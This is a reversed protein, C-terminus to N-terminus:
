VDPLAALRLVLEPPAFRPTLADSAGFKEVTAYSEAAPDLHRLIERRTADIVWLERVGFRAYVLPKRHVDYDLSRDAVEVALLIEPGTLESRRKSRDFVIFDPEIYTLEDLRLGTEQAVMVSEPAARTWVFGIAVKVDEHRNGKPSMPVIEGDLVELREDQGILGVEVMRVVDAVSFRRRPLGEALATPATM